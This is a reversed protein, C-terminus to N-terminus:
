EFRFPPLENEGPKLEARLSSTKADSYKGKLLDPGANLGDAKKEPSLYFVAIAYTGVPIGDHVGRSSVRFSGDAGAIAAFRKPPNSESELAVFTVVAGEAPKGRYFVSGRVPQPPPEGRCGCITAVALVAVLRWRRETM